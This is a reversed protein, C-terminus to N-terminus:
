QLGVVRFFCFGLEEIDDEADDCVPSAGAPLLEWEIALLHAPLGGGEPTAVRLTPDDRKLYVDYMAPPDM